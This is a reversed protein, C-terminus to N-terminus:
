EGGREVPRIRVSTHFVATGATEAPATYQQYPNSPGLPDEVRLRGARSARVSASGEARDGRLKVRYRARPRLCRPTTVTASGSGSLEFERCRARQLYSFERATRHM